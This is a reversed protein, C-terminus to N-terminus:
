ADGSKLPSWEPWWAKVHDHSNERKVRIVDGMVAYEFGMAKAALILLEKTEDKVGEGRRRWQKLRCVWLLTCPRQWNKACQCVSPASIIRAQRIQRTSLSM